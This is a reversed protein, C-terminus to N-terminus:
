SVPPTLPNQPRPKAINNLNHASTKQNQRSQGAEDEGNRHIKPQGGQRAAFHSRSQATRTRHSDRIEWGSTTGSRRWPLFGPTTGKTEPVCFPETGKEGHAGDGEAGRLAAGSTTIGWQRAARLATSKAAGGIPIYGLGVLVGNGLRWFLRGSM